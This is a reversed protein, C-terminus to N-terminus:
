RESKVKAKDGLNQKLIDRLLRIDSDGRICRKPVTYFLVKHFFLNFSSDTEVARLISDWSVHSSSKEDRVDYGDYAFTYRINKQFGKLNSFNRKAQIYIMAILLAPVIVIVSAYLGYSSANDNVLFALASVISLLIFIVMIIRNSWKSFFFWYNARLLDSLQLDVSVDVKAQKDM